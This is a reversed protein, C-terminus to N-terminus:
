VVAYYLKWLVKKGGKLRAEREEDIRDEEQEQYEDRHLDVTRTDVIDHYIWRWRFRRASILPTSATAPLPPQAPAEDTAPRRRSPWKVLLWGFSMVLMVPLEIYFSVFDVASFKPIVSSWGQVLDSPRVDYVTPM